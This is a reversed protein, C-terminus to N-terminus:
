QPLYLYFNAGRKPLAPRKRIIKTQKYCQLSDLQYRGLRSLLKYIECKERLDYKIWHIINAKKNNIENIWAKYLNYALQTIVTDLHKVGTGIVIDKWTINKGTVKTLATWVIFATKCEILMHKVTHIQNCTNCCPSTLKKWKHLIEGHILIRHFIKFNFEALKRDTINKIKNEFVNRQNLSLNLENEWKETTAMLHITNAHMLNTYFFKTKLSLINVLKGQRTLIVTPDLDLNRTSIHQTNDVFLTKYKKAINLIKSQISLFDYKNQIIQKLTEIKLNGQQTIVQGMRYIGHKIWNKSFLTQNNLTFHKNGWIISNLFQGKDKPCQEGKTKNFAIIM